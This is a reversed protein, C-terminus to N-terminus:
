AIRTAVIYSGPVVTLNGGSTAFQLSITASGTSIYSGEVIATRTIGAQATTATALASNATITAQTFASTNSTQQKILFKGTGSNTRVTFSHTNTTAANHQFFIVSKLSYSANAVVAFNLGINSLTASTTSTNTSLINYTAGGVGIINLNGTTINVNGTTATTINYDGASIKKTVSM